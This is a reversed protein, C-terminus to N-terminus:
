SASNKLTNKALVAPLREYSEEEKLGEPLPAAEKM